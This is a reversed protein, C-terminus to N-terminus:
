LVLMSGILVACALILAALTLAWSYLQLANRIDGVKLTTRGNGMTALNVIKGKYSRAGGLTLNLAGAMAAEPWGANPSVHKTADRIIARVAAKGNAQRNLCAAAVFLYATIRSAPYNVMDDLRASAWGFELYKPSRYGVMSDATNIAKYLAAGPLGFLAMWFLPAIIGDSTNEALSELSAKAIESENLDSADRGVIHGVAERGAATSTSLADAVATVYDRLSKQALMSSAIIAEIVLGGPMDRLISVILGTALLTCFLLLLLSLAGNIKRTENSFHPKNLAKDLLSILAGMWVVPHRVIKYIPDPYGVLREFLIAIFAVFLNALLFWM